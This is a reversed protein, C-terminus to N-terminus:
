VPNFVRERVVSKRDRASDLDDAITVVALVGVAGARDLVARVDHPTRAGCADLHTHADILPTL